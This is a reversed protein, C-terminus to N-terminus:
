GRKSFHWDIGCFFFGGEEWGICVFELGRLACNFLYKAKKGVLGRDGHVGRVRLVPM